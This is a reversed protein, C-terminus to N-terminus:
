ANEADSLIQVNDTMDNISSKGNFIGGEEIIVSAASINGNITGTPLIHVKDQATVTAKVKGAVIVNEAIITPEVHGTKGIHVDAECHIDGIVKGEIRLSKPHIINGEIITNTGIVTDVINSKRSKRRKFM